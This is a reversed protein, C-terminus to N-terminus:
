CISLGCLHDDIRTMSWMFWRGYLDHVVSTIKTNMNNIVQQANNVIAKEHTGQLTMAQLASSNVRDYTSVMPPSRFRKQVILIKYM